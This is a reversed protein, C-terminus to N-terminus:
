VPAKKLRKKKSSLMMMKTNWKIILKFTKFSLKNVAKVMVMEKNKVDKVASDKKSELKNLTVILVNKPSKKMTKQNM